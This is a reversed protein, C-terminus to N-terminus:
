HRMMAGNRAPNRIFDRMDSGDAADFFTMRSLRVSRSGGTMNQLMQPRRILPSMIARGTAPSHMTAPPKASPLSESGRSRRSPAPLFVYRMLAESAFWPKVM